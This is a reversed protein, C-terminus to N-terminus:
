PLLDRVPIHGILTGDLILPVQDTITYDQRRRYVPAPDPGTPDTYVELRMDPLNVIWYIPIGGEAYIAAKTTRDRPLSADAVEVVLGTDQPGPHRDAFDRRQGRVIVIDPEPESQTTSVASQDRRFWSAPLRRGIEDETLGLALDHPPNRTGKAVIWGDLLEYPDDEGLIGAAIMRHYEDVTFRRVPLSPVAAVGNATRPSSM